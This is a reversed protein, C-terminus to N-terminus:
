VTAPETLGSETSTGSESEGVSNDNSEGNLFLLGSDALYSDLNFDPDSMYTSVLSELVQIKRNANLLSNIATTAQGEAMEFKAVPVMTGLNEAANVVCLECIVIAGYYDIDSGFDIFRTVGKAHTHCVACQSPLAPTTTIQIKESSMVM